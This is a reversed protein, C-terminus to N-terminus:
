GKPKKKEEKKEKHEKNKEKQEKKEKPKPKDQAYGGVATGAVLLDLIVLMRSLKKM